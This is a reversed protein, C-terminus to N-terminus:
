SYILYEYKSDYSYFAGVYSITRLAAILSRCTNTLFVLDLSAIMNTAQHYNSNRLMATDTVMIARYKTGM